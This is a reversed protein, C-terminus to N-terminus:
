SLTERAGADFTTACRLQCHPRGPRFRASYNPGGCRQTSGADDNGFAGDGPRTLLVITSAGRRANFVAAWPTAEYAAELVLGRVAALTRCPVNTHPDISSPPVARRDITRAAEAM